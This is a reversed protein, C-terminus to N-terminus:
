IEIVAEDDIEESDPLYATVADLEELTMKELKNRAVEIAEKESKAEGIGVTIYGYREYAVGIKWGTREETKQARKEQLEASVTVKM